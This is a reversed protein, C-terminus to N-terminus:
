LAEGTVAQLHEEQPRRVGIRIARAYVCGVVGWWVGDWSLRGIGHVCVGWLGRGMWYFVCEMGDHVMGDWRVLVMIWGTLGVIWGMLDFPWNNWAGDFARAVFCGIPVTRSMRLLPLPAAVYPFRRFVFINLWCSNPIWLFYSVCLLGTLNYGKSPFCSAGHTFRHALQFQWTQQPPLLRYRQQLSLQLYIM